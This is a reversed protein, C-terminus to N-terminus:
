QEKPHLKSSHPHRIKPRYKSVHYRCRSYFPMHQNPHMSVDHSDKIYSPITKKFQQLQVDLYTYSIALLREVQSIIVRFPCPEEGKHVKPMGYAQAICLKKAFSGILWKVENYPLHNIKMIINILRTQVSELRNM